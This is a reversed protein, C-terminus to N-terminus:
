GPMVIPHKNQFLSLHRNARRIEIVIEDLSHVASGTWISNEHIRLCSHLEDKVPVRGQRFKSGIPANAAEIAYERTREKLEEEFSFIRIVHAHRLPHRLDVM